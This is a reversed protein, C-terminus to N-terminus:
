KKSSSPLLGWILEMARATEKWDISRSVSFDGKWSVFRFMFGAVYM